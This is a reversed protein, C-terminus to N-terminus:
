QVSQTASMRHYRGGSNESTVTCDTSLDIPMHVPSFQSPLSVSSNRRKATRCNNNSMIYANNPSYFEGSSAFTNDDGNYDDSLDIDCLNPNNGSNKFATIQMQGFPKKIKVKTWWPLQTKKGDMMINRLLVDQKPSHQQSPTKVEIKMPLPPKEMKADSPKPPLTNLDNKSPVRSLQSFANMFSFTSANSSKTKNLFSSAAFSAVEMREDPNQQQRQKEEKNYSVPMSQRRSIQKMQNHNIDNGELGLPNNSAESHISRVTINRPRNESGTIYSSSKSISSECFQTTLTDNDWDEGCDSTDDRHQHQPKEINNSIEYDAWKKPRNLKLLHDSKFWASKDNPIIFSSPNVDPGRSNERRSKEFRLEMNESQLQKCFAQLDQFEAHLHRYKLKYWDVQSRAEALEFSIKAMEQELIHCNDNNQDVEPANNTVHLSLDLDDAVDEVTARNSIVFTRRMASVSSTTNGMVSSADERSAGGYSQRSMQGVSYDCSKNGGHKSENLSNMDNINGVIKSSMLPSGGVLIEKSKSSKISILSGTEFDDSKISGDGGRVKRTNHNWLKTSESGDHTPPQEHHQHQQQQHQQQQHHHIIVTRNSSQVRSASVIPNIEEEDKIAVDLFSNLELNNSQILPM